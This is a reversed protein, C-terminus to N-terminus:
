RLHEPVEDVRRCSVEVYPDAVGVPEPTGFVWGPVSGARLDDPSVGGSTDAIFFSMNIQDRSMSVLEKERDVFGCDELEDHLAESISESVGDQSFRFMPKSDYEDSQDWYGGCSTSLAAVVSAIALREALHGQHPTM